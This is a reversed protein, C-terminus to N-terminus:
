VHAFTQGIQFERQSKPPKGPPKSPSSDAQLAPSRPEIGPQSSGKSFPIAVWELIRAQLIGCVSSGPPSCDISDCLTPCSQLSNAHMCAKSFSIAVWELIRAQLIGPVSSGPQGYEILNCVTLCLRSVLCCGCLKYLSAAPVKVCVTM